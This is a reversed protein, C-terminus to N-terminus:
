PYLSRPNSVAGVSEPPPCPSPVSAGVSWPRQCPRHEIAALWRGIYDTLAWTGDPTLHTGDYFWERRNTSYRFWDALLVDAYQPLTTLWQLDVNNEHYARQANARSVAENYTLWLVTHAGKARSMQVVADFEAPFDSFWDNYGTKIVVVDFTGPADRIAEVATNPILGTTDSRCSPRLLRRCSAADVIAEVPGLARISDPIIPVSALTSDGVVLVRLQVHQNTPAGTTPAVPTGTFWGTADVVLDSGGHSRYATGATSLRTVAFNAVTHNWRV